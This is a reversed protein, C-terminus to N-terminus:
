RFNPGEMWAVLSHRKGRTVPTVRHKLYSPFVIVTGRDAFHLPDTPNDEALELLGGEYEDPRSLQIVLSLKRQYPKTSKWAIDEHWGYHGQEEAVYETFQLSEIRDLAFGYANSNAEHIWGEIRSWLWNWEPERRVWRIVSRRIDSAVPTFAGSNGGVLGKKAELKGGNALVWDCDKAPLAGKWMQWWVQM